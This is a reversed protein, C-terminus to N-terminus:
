RVPFEVRFVSGEGAESEFSVTGGLLETYQKVIHLGLGTGQMNLSNEARFFREFLNTQDHIPIGIGQDKIEICTTKKGRILNLQIDQDVDSYKIANSLLNILIHQMLKQDLYVGITEKNTKMQLTQGRKKTPGIEELLTNSFAVLDFLMPKVAVKGEELKALSMFDNLIVVLNRVNSKIQQIYKIRKEKHDSENQKQLLIASSLIASLPTRFEHSAMSIFRSKLKNLEQEQVLAKRIEVEAQKQKTIDNFVFLTWKVINNGNLLPSTNVAYNKNKFRTEFSLHEGELTRKVDEKIRAIREKSFADIDDINLGEFQSKKYGLRYLEGGDIYVIDFDANIVIIVGKPFNKSIATFMAQSALSKKEAEKTEMMQDELSLNTDILKQLIAKCVETREAVEQELDNPHEGLFESSNQLEQRVINREITMRRLHPLNAITECFPRLHKEQDSTDRVFVIEVQKDGINAPSLRMGLPFQRGNRKIGFLNIHEGIQWPETNSAYSAKKDKRIKRIKQPIFIEVKKGILEGTIYGFLKC